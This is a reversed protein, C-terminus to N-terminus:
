EKNTGTVPVNLQNNMQANPHGNTTKKDDHSNELISSESKSATNLPNHHSNDSEGQGPANTPSPCADFTAVKIGKRYKTRKHFQAKELKNDKALEELTEKV